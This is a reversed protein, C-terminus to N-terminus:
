LMILYRALYPAEVLFLSKTLIIFVEGRFGRGLMHPQSKPKSM